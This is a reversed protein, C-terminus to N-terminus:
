ADAMATLQALLDPAPQASAPEVVPLPDGKLKADILARLGTETPDSYDAIDFRLVAKEILKAALAREQDGVAVPAVPPAPRLDAGYHLSRLWLGGDPHAAVVVLKERKSLTMTAVAAKGTEQMAHWLLAYYPESGKEPELYYQTDSLWWSPLPGVFGKVAINSRANYFQDLEDDSFVLYEGPKNKKPKSLELGKQLDGYPADKGCGPCTRTQKIPQHCCGTVQKFRTTAESATATTGTVAVNLLGWQIFGSYSTRM